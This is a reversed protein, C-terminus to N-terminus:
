QLVLDLGDTTAYIGNAAAPSIAIAQFRVSLGVLGPPVQYLLTIGGPPLLTPGIPGIGFRLISLSGATTDVWLGPNFPDPGLLTGTPFSQLVLWPIAGVFTEDPSHLRVTVADGPLADKPTQHVDGAGAVQTELLFDEGTGMLEWWAEDQGIDVGTGVLRPDGDLDVAPLGSPDPDGAHLCPSGTTLHLDGAALDAFLPDVDLDGVGVPAVGEVDCYSTTVSGGLSPLDNGWVLCNRLVLGWGYVVGVQLPDPSTNAAFTSSSVAGSQVSGYLASGSGSWGDDGYWGSSGWPDGSGSAGGHGGVGGVGAGNAFLECGALDLDGWAIAIAGGDGGTGGRGGDGGDGGPTGGFPGSSGSGGKGGIGGVGGTGGHNDTFRCREIVLSGTSLWIAGGDGGTGGPYGTGGDTGGSGTSTGPFGTGGVGGTGARNDVFDCALFTASAAQMWVGGGHEGAGGPSYGTADLGDPARGGRLTFGEVTFATTEGTQVLLVRGLGGADITTAAAGGVSLLHVDKGAPDLDFEAYTGPQVLITDGSTAALLADAITPYTGPVDLTSGALAPLALVLACPALLTSRLM